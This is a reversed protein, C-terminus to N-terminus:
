RGATGNLSGGGRAPSPFGGGETWERKHPAPPRAFLKARPSLPRSLIHLM